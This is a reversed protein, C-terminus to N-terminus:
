PVQWEGSEIQVKKLKDSVEASMFEWVGKTKHLFWSGGLDWDKLKTKQNTVIKHLRYRMGHDHAMNVSGVKFTNGKGEKGKGDKGKNYKGFKNKGDGFAEKADPPLEQQAIVKRTVKRKKKKQEDDSSTAKRKQGHEDQGISSGGGTVASTDKTLEEYKYKILKNTQKLEENETKLEENETMLEKILVNCDKMLENAREM